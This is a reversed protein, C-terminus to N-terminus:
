KKGKARCKTTEFACGLILSRQSSNAHHQHPAPFRQSSSLTGHTLWLCGRQQGLRAKSSTLPLEIITQNPQLWAQGIFVSIAGIFSIWSDSSNGKIDGKKWRLPFELIFQWLLKARKLLEPPNLFKLSARTCLGPRATTQNFGRQDQLEQQPASTNIVTQINRLNFGECLLFNRKQQLLFNLKWGWEPGPNWSAANLPQALYQLILCCM